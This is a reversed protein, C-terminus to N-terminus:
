MNYGTPFPTRKAPGPQMIVYVLNVTRVHGECRDGINQHVLGPIVSTPVSPRSGPTNVQREARKAETSERNMSPHRNIVQYRSRAPALFSTEPM